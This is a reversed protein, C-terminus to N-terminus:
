KTDAKLSLAFLVFHPAYIPLPYLILAGAQSVSIGSYLLEWWVVAGTCFLVLWAAMAAAQQCFEGSSSVHACYASYKAFM